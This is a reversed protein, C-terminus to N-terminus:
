GKSTAQEGKLLEYVKRAIVDRTFPKALFHVGEELIGRHAIVDATYGSIFLCKMGPYTETLKAALDQGNMGPMVVDTILLHLPGSHRDALRLAEGPDAATLVTYGLAQLFLATTV